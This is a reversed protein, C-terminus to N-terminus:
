PPAGEWQGNWGDGWVPLFDEDRHGNRDRRREGFRRDFFRPDFFPPTGFHHDDGREFGRRRHGPVLASSGRRHTGLAVNTSTTFGRQAGAASGASMTGPRAAAAGAMGLTAAALLLGTMVRMAAEM